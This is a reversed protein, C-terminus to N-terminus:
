LGTAAPKVLTARIEHFSGIHRAAVEPSDYPALAGDEGLVQVSGPVVRWDCTVPYHHVRMTRRGERSLYFLQAVPIRREHTPDQDAHDHWPHPWALEFRAGPKAIRFAEDFFRFFADQTRRYVITARRPEGGPTKVLTVADAMGLPVRGRPIHEIVHWARLGDVSEDEWPWQFGSFLDFHVVRDGDGDLDIGLYGPAPDPGSGLDLFLGGATRLTPPLPDLEVAFSM